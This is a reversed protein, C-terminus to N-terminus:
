TRRGCFREWANLSNWALEHHIAMAIGHEETIGSHQIRAQLAMEEVISAELPMDFGSMGGTYDCRLQQRMERDM